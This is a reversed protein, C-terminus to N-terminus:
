AEDKSKLLYLWCNRLFADICSLYYRYGSSPEHAPGWLGLKVLEFPKTYTTTSSVFRLRHSEVSPHGLHRNWLWFKIPLSPLTFRAVDMVTTQMLQPRTLTAIFRYLGDQEVGHLLVENTHEDKILCYSPHFEFYVFNGKTFKSVSLLNNSVTSVHLLENLLLPRSSSSITSTGIHNIPLSFDNGVTVKGPRTYPSHTSLNTLNNTVYYSAGSDPVWNQTRLSSVTTTTTNTVQPSYTNTSPAMPFSITTNLSITNSPPQIFPCYGYSSTQIHSALEYCQSPNNYTCTNVSPNVVPQQPPSYTQIRSTTRGRGCNSYSSRPRPVFHSTPFHGSFQTQGPFPIFCALPGSTNPRLYPTFVFDTPTPATVQATNISLPLRHPDHLCSETDLLITTVRDLTYPEHSSTIVTVFSDYDQPLGNLITAIHEIESIPSECTALIDCVEKIQSLYDRMSLAGKRLSRLKYHLHM